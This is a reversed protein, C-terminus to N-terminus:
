WRPPKAFGEGRERARLRDRAVDRPLIGLARLASAYEYRMTIREAPHPQAQFDVVHVPDHAQEGWGTGPYSRSGSAQDDSRRSLGGAKAAPADAEGEASPATTPPPASASDRAAENRQRTVDPQQRWAYPRQERYVALEIWGMRANAQGSRTAYSRQEDVFTFRRIDDLSSRWGQIHASEYPDLVYMRGRQDVAQREGSIVNLGDVTMLVALREGTRNTLRFAYRAGRRAELYYRGSGDVARYLPTESGEVDVSVGVLSGPAPYQHASVEGTAALVVAAVGARVM